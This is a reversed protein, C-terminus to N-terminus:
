TEGLSTTNEEMVGRHCGSPRQAPRTEICRARWVGKLQIDREFSFPTQFDGTAERDSPNFSLYPFDLPVAALRECHTAM